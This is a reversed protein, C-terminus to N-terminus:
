YYIEASSLIGGGAVLVKGSTLLTATHRSREATMTGTAAFTGSMPDYLEASSFADVYADGGAVLVKGSPLLTATHSARTTAMSGTPSFTGSDADYLEASAFSLVEDCGGVVLVTGNPLLTATHWKRATALAGTTTFTGSFPDYLEASSLEVMTNEGVNNDGGAVLVKGNPLLTATHSERAMTMAGTATFTGSTPDYLEASALPALYVVSGGTVLVKGNALLTATHGSRATTMSGTDTFTDSAPDYLEASSLFGFDEGVGGALLVKGSPLLTATHSNRAATVTATFTGSDPDYLDSNSAPFEGAVLVKGNPLLTATHNERPMCMSGTAIFLGPPQAVTVMVQATVSDGAPNTVTLTYTTSAQLDGTSVGVGSVVSGIGNSIAGAGDTFVATLITSAGVTTAPPSAAFSDISPLPVVTVLVQATTSEQEYDWTVLTYTATQSPTVVISTGSRIYAVAVAQGDILLDTDIAQLCGVLTWSLTTSHGLTVIPPSATFGAIACNRMTGTGGGSAAGSGATGGQGFSGGSFSGGVAASGGGPGSTGGFNAAGGHGTAGASASGGVPGPRTGAAGDWTALASGGEAFGAGGASGDDGFGGQILRSRGCGGVLLAALLLASRLNM